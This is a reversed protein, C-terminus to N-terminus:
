LDNYETIVISRKNNNERDQKKRLENEYLSSFKMAENDLGLDAYLLSLVGYKITRRYFRTFAVNTTDQTVPTYLYDKLYNIQIKYTIADVAPGFYLKGAYICYHKPKDTTGDVTPNPYLRDFKEKSLKILEYSTTGDILIADGILKLFDDPLDLEYDKAATFGAIYTEEKLDDVDLRLQM